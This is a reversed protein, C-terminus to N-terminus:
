SWTAACGSAREERRSRRRRHGAHLHAAADDATRARTRRVTTVTVRLSLRPLVQTHWDTSDGGLGVHAVLDLPGASGEGHLSTTTGGPVPPDIRTASGVRTGARNSRAALYRDGSRWFVWLRGEPAPALGVAGLNTGRVVVLPERGVRLLNLSTVGPYGATYAVFIGAATIRGSIATRHGPARAASRDAAASGPVPSPSGALGGADLRQTWLGASGAASSFWGLVLEGSVGDSALDPGSACCAPEYRVDATGASHRAANAAGAAEGHAAAVAGTRSAEAGIGAASGSATGASFRTPATWSAGSNGSASTVLPGSLPDGPTRVGGWFARLVAGQAVLDVRPNIQQWGSAVVTAAGALVGGPTIAQHVLEDGGSGARQYLVHVLGDDTRAIGPEASLANGAHVRTWTGPPGGGAVAPTLLAAAAALLALRAAM